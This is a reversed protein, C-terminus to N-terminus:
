YEEVLDDDFGVILMGAAIENLLYSRFANWDAQSLEQKLTDLTEFCIEEVVDRSWADALSRIEPASMGAVRAMEKFDKKRLLKKLTKRSSRREILTMVEVFRTALEGVEPVLEDRKTNYPEVVALIAVRGEPSVGYEPLTKRVEEPWDERSAFSGTFSDFTEPLRFLEPTFDGSIFYRLDQLMEASPPSVAGVEIAALYRRRNAERDIVKSRLEEPTLEDTLTWWYPSNAPPMKDMWQGAAVSALVLFSAFTLLLVRGLRRM